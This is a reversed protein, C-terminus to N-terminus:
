NTRCKAHHLNYVIFDRCITDKIRAKRPNREGLRQKERPCVGLSNSGAFATVVNPKISLSYM